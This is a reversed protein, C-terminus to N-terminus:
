PDIERLGHVKRLSNEFRRRFDAALLLVKKLELVTRARRAWHLVGNESTKIAVRWGYDTAKSEIFPKQYPLNERM